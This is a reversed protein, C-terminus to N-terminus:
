GLVALDEKQPIFKSTEILCSQLGYHDEEAIQNNSARKHSVSKELM